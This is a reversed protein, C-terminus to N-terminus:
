LKLKYSVGGGSVVGREKHSQVDKLEIVRMSISPIQSRDINTKETRRPRFVFTAPGSGSKSVIDRLYLTGRKIPIRIKIPNSESLEADRLTPENWNLVADRPLTVEMYWGEGPPASRDFEIAINTVKTSDILFQSGFQVTNSSADVINLNKWILTRDNAVASTLDSFSLGPMAGEPFWKVLICYHGPGPMDKWIIEYARSAGPPVTYVESRDIEVWPGSTVAANGAPVYYAVVFGRAPQAGRNRAMSYIYNPQGYEPNQHRHLNVLGDQEIRVWVDPAEWLARGASASDPQGGTDGPTDKLYVLADAPMAGQLTTAAAAFNVRPYAIGADVLPVGSNVLASLIDNVPWDAQARLVAIGGAVLPAAMSTGTMFGFNSALLSSRINTGPALLTLGPGANSSANIGADAKLSNGVAIVGPSCAPFSIRTKDGDNGSSITVAVGMTRLERVIDRISAYLSSTCAGETHTGLSLNVTSIYHSLMLTDRVHALAAFIDSIRAEVGAPEFVRIPIYSAGPAGGRQPSGPAVSGVAIGAVHTGHACSAGPCPAGSGPGFQAIAGNACGGTAFCAEDAVRGALFPHNTQTGSDVVVVTAGIGPPPPTNVTPLGVLPVAQDLHQELVYDEEIADIDPHVAIATLAQPPAAVAVLNTGEIIRADTIGLKLLEGLVREGSKRVANLEGLATVEAPAAKLRILSRPTASGASTVLNQPAANREILPTQCAWLPCCLLLLLLKLKM